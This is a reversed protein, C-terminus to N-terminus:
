IEKTVEYKLVFVDTPHCKKKEEQVWRSDHLAAAKKGDGKMGINLAKSM